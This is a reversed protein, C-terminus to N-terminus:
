IMSELPASGAALPLEELECGSQDCRLLSGQEYWDGLVIRKCSKNDLVFEHIAPRHTHGHILQAVDNDLMAQEIAIQNVDM